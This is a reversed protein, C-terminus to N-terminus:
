GKPKSPTESDSLGEAAFEQNQHYVHYEETARVLWESYSQQNEAQIEHSQTDRSAVGSLMNGTNSSGLSGREMTTTTAM